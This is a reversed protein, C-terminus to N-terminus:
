RIATFLLETFQPLGRKYELHLGDYYQTDAFDLPNAFEYDLVLAPTAHLQALAPQMGEDIGKLRLILESVSRHVPPLVVVFRIGKETCAEITEVLRDLDAQNLSWRDTYTALDEQAYDIFFDSLTICLNDSESLLTVMHAEDYEELPRQELEGGGIPKNQLFLLTNEVAQLHFSLNTMYVFPNDLSQGIAKARDARYAANLTYFSLGFVVETINPYEELWMDLLDLEEKLSAGGFALNAFPRGTIEQARQMDFYALRSDGLLISDVPNQRYARLVGIPSGAANTSQLGFYNNPEFCLFVGYYLVIPLLLLALNRVFKKM